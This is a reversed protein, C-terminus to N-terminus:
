MALLFSIVLGSYHPRIELAGVSYWAFEKHYCPGTQKLRICGYIQKVLVAHSSKM